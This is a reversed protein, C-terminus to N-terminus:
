AIEKYHQGLIEPGLFEIMDDLIYLGFKQKVKDANNLANPIWGTFLASLINSCLHKHTKFLAGFIEAISLQLDHESKNEEKVLEKDDEIEEPEDEADEKIMQNNEEIRQDSKTYMEFFYNTLQDLDTQQLFPVEVEIFIEKIAQVQCIMTDTETEKKMADWLKTLFLKGYNIIYENNQPNAEKYCKILGPLSGAVSNRISDNAEYTLLGLLINSAQDVYEAFGGGLEEIFVSLM